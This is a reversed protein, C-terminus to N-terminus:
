SGTKRGYAQSLIRGVEFSCAQLVNLISTVRPDTLSAEPEKALALEDYPIAGDLNLVGFLAGDLTGPADTWSELDEPDRAMRPADLELFWCDVPDFIPVSALWTRDARIALHQDQSMGLHIAGPPLDGEAWQRTFSLNCLFPRRNRFCRGTLGADYDFELHRDPDHEMGIAYAMMLKQGRPMFINARLKLKDNDEHGFVVLVQRRLRLLADKIAARGSEDPFSFSYAKLEGRAFEEGRAYMARIKDDTLQDVDLLNAPANTLSTPQMLPIARPLRAALTKELENRVQGRALDFLSVIFGSPRADPPPTDSRDPIVRLGLNLWPRIAMDRYRGIELMARRLESSFVWAPFNSIMGGDVYCGELGQGELDVPRFFVPFGASARVSKAVSLPHFRRDFSQILVLERTRLNTATLILPVIPLEQAPSARQLEDVWGFTLPADGLGGACAKFRPSNKLCDDIFKEFHQGSFFGRRLYGPSHVRSITVFLSLIRSCLWVAGHLVGLVLASLIVVLGGVPYAWWHDRWVLIPLSGMALAVTVRSMGSLLSLLIMRTLKGPIGPDRSSRERSEGSPDFTDGILRAVAKLEGALRKFDSYDFRDRGNECPGLLDLVTRYGEGAAGRDRSGAGDMALKVFIDRIEKPSYGAWSLAAVVAGASTGAYALPIFRSEDIVSALQGLMNLGYVGGGQITVVALRDFEGPQSAAQESYQM